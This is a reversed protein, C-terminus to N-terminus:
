GIRMRKGQSNVHLLNKQGNRCKAIEGCDLIAEDEDEDEDEDDEDEDDEELM